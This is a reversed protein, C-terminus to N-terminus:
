GSWERFAQCVLRNAEKSRRGDLAETLVRVLNETGSPRLYFRVDSFGDQIVQLRNRFKRDQQWASKDRIELNTLHQPYEEFQEVLEALGRSNRNVLLALQLGALIGDGAPLKDAMIIHGSQEGGLSLGSREMENVVNIDGVETRHLSIGHGALAQEIAMNTMRTMVVGGQRRYRRLRTSFLAILKDGNVTSGDADVALVRDGDGDFALGLGAGRTKVATSLQALDTAGCKVNVRSGDFRDNIASVRFGYDAFVVPALEATAGWACDLVVKLKPQRPRRLKGHVFKLYHRRPNLRNLQGFHIGPAAFKPSGSDLDEEIRAELDSPIKRGDGAFFKVGNDEVPNHSATIMLGGSSRQQLILLPVMPTPAIGLDLVDVGAAAVGGAAAAALMPSSLRSDRALVVQPRGNRRFGRSGCIALAFSQAARLVLGATLPGGAKGRIGDTGFYRNKAM